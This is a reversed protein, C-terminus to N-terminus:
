GVAGESLMCFIALLAMNATVSMVVAFAQPVVVVARMLTGMTTSAAPAIMNGVSAAPLAMLRWNSAVMSGAAGLLILKVAPPAATTGAVRPENMTTQLLVASSM